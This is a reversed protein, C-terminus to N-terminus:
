WQAFDGASQAGSQKDIPLCTGALGRGKREEERQTSLQYTCKMLNGVVPAVEVRQQGTELELQAKHRGCRSLLLGSPLPTVWDCLSSSPLSLTRPISPPPTAWWLFAKRVTLSLTKMAMWESQSATKSPTTHTDRPFENEKSVIERGWTCNEIMSNKAANRRCNCSLGHLSCCCSFSSSPCVVGRSITSTAHTGAHTGTQTHTGAQAHARARISYGATRTHAHTLGSDNMWAATQLSKM